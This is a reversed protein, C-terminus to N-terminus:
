PCKGLPMGVKVYCADCWFHGNSPNYTGDTRAYKIREAMRADENLADVEEQSEAWFGDLYTMDSALRECKPDRPDPLGKRSM